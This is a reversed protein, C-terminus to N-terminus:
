KFTKGTKKQPMGDYDVKQHVYDPTTVRKSADQSGSELDQSGPKRKDIEM